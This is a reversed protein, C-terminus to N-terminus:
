NYWLYKELSLRKSILKLTQFALCDKLLCKNKHSMEQLIGKLVLSSELCKVIVLIKKLKKRVKKDGIEKSYKMMM